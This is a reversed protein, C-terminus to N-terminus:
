DSAPDGDRRAGETDYVVPEAVTAALWGGDHSVHVTEGIRERGGRVLALAFPRELAVSDIARPSTAPWRCRCPTRRSSCSRRARRCCAGPAAAAGVLQKRDERATDPRVHSPAGVFDGKRKSVMWDM